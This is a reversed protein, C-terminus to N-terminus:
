SALGKTKLLLCSAPIRSIQKTVNGNNYNIVEVEMVLIMMM